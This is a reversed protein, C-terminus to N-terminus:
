QIPDLYGTNHAVKRKPATGSLTTMSRSHLKGLPLTSSLLAPSWQLRGVWSASRLAKIAAVDDEPKRNQRRQGADGRVQRHHRAEAQVVVFAREHEGDLLVHGAHLAVVLYEAGLSRDVVEILPRQMRGGRCGYGVVHHSDARQKGPEAYGQDGTPDSQPQRPRQDQRCPHM